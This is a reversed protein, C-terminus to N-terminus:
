PSAMNRENTPSRQISTDLKNAEGVDSRVSFNDDVSWINKNMIPTSIKGDDIRSDGIEISARVIRKCSLTPENQSTIMLTQSKFSDLPFTDSKLIMKSSDALVDTILNSSIISTGGQIMGQTIGRGGRGIIGVRIVEPDVSTTGFSTNRVHTDTIPEKSAEFQKSM